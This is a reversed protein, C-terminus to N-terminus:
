EGKKIYSRLEENIFDFLKEGCEKQILIFEISKIGTYKKIIDSISKYVFIIYDKESEYSSYNDSIQKLVNKYLESYKIENRMLENTADEEFLDNIFFDILKDDDDFIPMLAWLDVDKLSFILYLDNKYMERLEKGSYERKEIKINKRYM